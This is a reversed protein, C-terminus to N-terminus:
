LPFWQSWLSIFRGISLVDLNRSRRSGTNVTLCSVVSSQNSVIHLESQLKITEGNNIINTLTAFVNQNVQSTVKDGIRNATSFELQIGGTGIYENSSWILIRSETVTCNFIVKEAPCASEGDGLSSLLILEQSSQELM